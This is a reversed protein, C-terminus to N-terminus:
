VPVRLPDLKRSSTKLCCPTISYEFSQCFVEYSRQDPRFNLRPELEEAQQTRNAAGFRILGAVRLVRFEFGEWFKM